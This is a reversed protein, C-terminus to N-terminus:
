DTISCRLRRESLNSGLVVEDVRLERSDLEPDGSRDIVGRDGVKIGEAALPVAVDYGVITHITDGADADAPVQTLATVRCPLTVYPTAPDTYELTSPDLVMDEPATPHRLAIRAIMSRELQSQDYFTTPALLLRLYRTRTASKWREIPGQILYTDGDWRIRCTADVDTSPALWCQWTPVEVDDLRRVDGRSSGTSSAPQVAAAVTTTSAAPQTWDPISGDLLVPDDFTAPHLVEVSDRLRPM